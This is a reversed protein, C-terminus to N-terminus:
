KEYECANKFYTYDYLKSCKIEEIKSITCYSLGTNYIFMSCKGKCITALDQKQEIANKLLQEIM